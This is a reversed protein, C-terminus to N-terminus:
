RLYLKHERIYQLVSDPLLGAPIDNKTIKKRIETSSVDFFGGPMVHATLKEVTGAPFHRALHERDVPYGRRPYTVIRWRAAIDAARRWTHFLRLSDSGLLLILTDKPRERALEALVDCTYSPTRKLRGELDSATMGTEGALLLEVMQLRDAFGARLGSQKHPPAYAPAFLIRDALRRALVQRALELHGCHPPDFAGGFFAIDLFFRRKKVLFYVM